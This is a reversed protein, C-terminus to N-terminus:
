NLSRWVISPRERESLLILYRPPLHERLKAFMRFSEARILPRASEIVPRVRARLM